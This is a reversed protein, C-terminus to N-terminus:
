SPRLNIYQATRHIKHHCSRCVIITKEPVYTIHHKILQNDPKTQKCVECKKWLYKETYEGACKNSCFDGDNHFDKGCYKCYGDPWDYRGESECVIYSEGEIGDHNDDSLRCPCGAKFLTKMEIKILRRRYWSPITQKLFWYFLPSPDSWIKVEETGRMDAYFSGDITHKAFLNVKKNSEQYGQTILIKEYKKLIIFTESYIRNGFKDVPIM